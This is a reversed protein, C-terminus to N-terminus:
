ATGSFDHARSARGIADSFEAVLHSAHSHSLRGARRLGFDIAAFAKKGETQRGVRSLVRRLWSLKERVPACDKFQVNCGLTSRVSLLSAKDTANRFYADICTFRNNQGPSLKRRTEVELGSSWRCYGGDNTWCLDLIAFDIARFCNLQLGDAVIEKPIITDIKELRYRLREGDGGDALKLVPLMLAVEAKRTGDGRLSIDCFNGVLCYLSAQCDGWARVEFLDGPSIPSRLGNVVEAPDYLEASRLDQIAKDTLLETKSISLGSGRIRTLVAQVEENSIVKRQLQRRQEIGIIRLLTDIEPVGESESRHTVAYMFEELTLSELCSFADVVAQAFTDSLLEKLRMHQSSLCIRSLGEAISTGVTSSGDERQRLRDKSMAFVPLQLPASSSFITQTLERGLRFEAAQDCETTLVLVHLMSRPMQSEALAALISRGDIGATKDKNQLDIIFLFVKNEPLDRLIKKWHNGWDVFSWKNWEWPVTDGPSFLSCLAEKDSTPIPQPLQNDIQRLRQIFEAHQSAISQVTTTVREVYTDEDEGDQRGLKRLKGVPNGTMGKSLVNSIEKIQGDTADVLAEAFRSPLQDAPIDKWDVNDDDIWYVASIQLEDMLDRFTNM